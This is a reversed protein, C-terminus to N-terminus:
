ASAQALTLRAVPVRYPSCSVYDVGLGAFFKLSAPDGAHEGCIGIKLRPNAARGREIAIAILEGVGKEDINVFPDREYIGKRQYAALFTPADDRSIGFTTQTLDNTGFSFFDVMQAIDAARLCARPLEIMTGFSFKVRDTRLLGSNAAIANVRDRVWAVESATSVFPVMVEVAVPEAQTESAARAGAMLAQMQMQLMEPYTIALRVGRHGLMPNIEAIRDLRLRLARVALGFSAATEEIEEDTRPLFEHLPPDFLRVTVPLGNMTSFLASYDGTQYDVLGNIARNRDEEDESLIVRRLAVMREPSFFMHESRALGIGEAGFSLATRASEVTEVNTRVAITRSADSWGLLTGIAGGIHPQALPLMGMYVHGDSGDITIRDGTRFERDGIRCVMEATDVSMTRVGAVCPKGTIRAIVGAHSSMGGRATLIGTAAKMGEIDAPGTENVVLICHKSRARMRAADETNFVIVGSAAGPSVGLGTAILAAGEASKLRPHLLQTLRTPDVRTVANQASWIKRNVRDVAAELEAAATVQVPRASLFQVQGRKIAVLCNMHRGAKADLLTVLADISESMRPLPAGNVPAPGMAGTVAHRTLFQEIEGDAAAQVLVIQRGRDEDPRSTWGQGFGYSDFAAKIAKALPRTPDVSDEPNAPAAIGLKAPMLGGNHAAASTRVVLLPPVADKGVLKFLCAVWHTRLKHEKHAREGQLAEWAARTLAITPVTPFGAEGVRFIWRAKGSLLKLQSASLNAKGMAPAIAFMEQALSV